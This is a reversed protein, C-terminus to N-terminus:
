WKRGGLVRGRPKLLQAKMQAREACLGDIKGLM